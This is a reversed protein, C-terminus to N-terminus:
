RSIAQVDCMISPVTAVFFSGVILEGRRLRQSGGTAPSVEAGNAHDDATMRHLAALLLLNVDVIDAAQRQADLLQGACNSAMPRDLVTQVPHWIDVKCLVGAVDAFSVAGFDRGHEPLQRQHDELSVGPEQSVFALESSPFLAVEFCEECLVLGILIRLGQMM